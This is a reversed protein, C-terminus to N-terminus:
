YLYAMSVGSMLIFILSSLVTYKNTNDETSHLSLYFFYFFKLYFFLSLLAGFIPLIVFLFDWDSCLASTLVRWKAIFLPFPPLGSMALISVGMMMKDGLTAFVTWIIFAITYLTFYTWLDGYAAGICVWGTHAVSSSGLMAKVSTQNLGIVAGALATLGGVICVIYQIEANYELINSLFALPAIKQWVLLIFMSLWDFGAAVSPVWFHWPFIGLKVCLAVLLIYSTMRSAEPNVYYLIGGMMLFVSGYAQVSFYKFVSENSLSLAKSYGLFLPIAGLLSLEVGVWCIFWNSSSISVLPGLALLTIFLVNRSSTTM